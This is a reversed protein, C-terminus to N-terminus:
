HSTNTLLYYIGIAVVIYAAKFEWVVSALIKAERSTSKSM